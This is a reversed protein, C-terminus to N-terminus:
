YIAAEKTALTTASSYRKSRDFWLSPTHSICEFCFLIIAALSFLTETHIPTFIYGCVCVCDTALLFIAPVVAFSVARVDHRPHLNQISACTFTICYHTFILCCCCANDERREQIRGQITQYTTLRSRIDHQLNDFHMTSIRKGSPACPTCLSLIWSLFDLEAKGVETIYQISQFIARATHPHQDALQKFCVQYAHTPPHTAPALAKPTHNCLVFWVQAHLRPVFILSYQVGHLRGFNANVNRVNIRHCASHM